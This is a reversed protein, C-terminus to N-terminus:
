IQSLCLHNNFYSFAYNKGCIACDKRSRYKALIADRNKTYYTILPTKQNKKNNPM